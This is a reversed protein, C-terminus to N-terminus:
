GRKKPQAAGEGPIYLYYWGSKAVSWNWGEHPKEPTTPPTVPPVIPEPLPLTNDIYPPLEPGGIPPWIVLPPEVPPVTEPPLIPGGGIGLGTIEAFGMITAPYPPDKKNRPYIVGSITVPVSAM